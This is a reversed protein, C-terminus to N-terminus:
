EQTYGLEGFCAYTAALAMYMMEDYHRNNCIDFDEIQMEAEEQEYLFIEEFKTILDKM